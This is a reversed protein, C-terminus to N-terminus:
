AYKAKFYRIKGRTFVWCYATIGIGGNSPLWTLGLTIYYYCDESPFPVTVFSDLWSSQFIFLKFNLVSKQTTILLVFIKLKMTLNQRRGPHLVDCRVCASPPPPSPATCWSCCPGWARCRASPPCCSRPTTRPSFPLVRWWQSEWEGHCSKDIYKNFTQRCYLTYWMELSSLNGLGRVKVIFVNQAVLNDEEANGLPLGPRGDDPVLVPPLQESMAVEMHTRTQETTDHWCM